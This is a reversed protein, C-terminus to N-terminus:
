NRGILVIEFLNSAIKTTGNEFIVTKLGSCEAFPGGYNSGGCQELSKPIEIKTVKKYLRWISGVGMYKLNKSLTINVLNSCGRFAVEEIETVSDPIM